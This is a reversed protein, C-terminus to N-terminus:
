PVLEWWQDWGKVTKGSRSMGSPAYRKRYRVGNFVVEQKNKTDPFTKQLQEELLEKDTKPLVGTAKLYDTILEVWRVAARADAQHKNPNNGSYADIREEIRALEDQAAKLGELTYPDPKTQM